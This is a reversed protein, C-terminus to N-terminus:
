NRHRTLTSSTNAANLTMEKTKTKSWDCDVFNVNQLFTEKKQQM